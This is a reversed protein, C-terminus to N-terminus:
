RRHNTSKKKKQESVGFDMNIQPDNSSACIFLFLLTPHQSLLCFWSTSPSTLMWTGLSLPAFSTHFYRLALIITSKIYFNVWITFIGLLPFLCYFWFSFFYELKWFYYDVSCHVSSTVRYVYYIRSVYMQVNPQVTWIFQIWNYVWATSVYFYARDNVALSAIVLISQSIKKKSDLYEFFKYVFYNFCCIVNSETVISGFSTWM